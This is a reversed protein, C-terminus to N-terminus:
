CFTPSGCKCAIKDSTQAVSCQWIRTFVQALALASFRVLSALFSAPMASWGELWGPTQQQRNPRLPVPFATIGTGGLWPSCAGMPRIPCIALEGDDSRGERHKTAPAFTIEGCSDGPAERHRGIGM